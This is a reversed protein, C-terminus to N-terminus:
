REKVGRERGMSRAAIASSVDGGVRGSQDHRVCASLMATPLSANSANRGITREVEVLREQLEGVRSQRQAVFARRSGSDAAVTADHTIGDALLRPDGNRV